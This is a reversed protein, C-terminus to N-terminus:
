HMSDRSADSPCSPLIQHWTRYGTKTQNNCCSARVLALGKESCVSYMRYPVLGLSRNKCPVKTKPGWNQQPPSTKELVGIHWMDWDEATVKMLNLMQYQAEIRWGMNEQTGKKGRENVDCLWVLATEKSAGQMYDWIGLKERLIRFSQQVHEGVNCMWCLICSWEEGAKVHGRCNMYVTDYKGICTFARHSREM